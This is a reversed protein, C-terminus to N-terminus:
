NQLQVKLTATEEEDLPMLPLRVGGVPIGSFNLASKLPIPNPASFLAKFKPILKRHIAAAESVKGAKFLDIMEAMENGLIHSSVSVIGVGGISLVPLAMSDDGSYLFFGDKTQEIIEAVADLDGSAEKVAVINEIESLRITTDVDINVSTRGPINYLMIPLTTSEAIAKFHQFLGEQSPRNYYPAVLMIADVGSAEADITLNISKRTDNSGTGAIIPIRKDVRNVVFQFLAVKEDYSITPSEGTTGAVVLADSGNAILHEILNETAEFDIEGESDFPTVMATVIKGFNMEGCGKIFNDYVLILNMIEM